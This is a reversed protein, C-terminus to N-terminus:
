GPNSLRIKKMEGRNSYDKNVCIIILVRKLFFLDKQKIRRICYIGANRAASLESGQVNKEQILNWANVTKINVAVLIIICPRHM